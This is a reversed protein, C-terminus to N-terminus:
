QNQQGRKSSTLSVMLIAGAILAMVVYGIWAAPFTRVVPQRPAGSVAAVEQALAPTAAVLLVLGILIVRSLLRRAQSHPQFGPHKM